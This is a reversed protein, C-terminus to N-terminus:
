SLPDGLPNSLIQTGRFLDSLHQCIHKASADALFTTVEVSHESNRYFSSIIGHYGDQLLYFVYIRRNNEVSIYAM